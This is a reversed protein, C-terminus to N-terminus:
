WAGNSLDDFNPEHRAPALAKAARKARLEQATTGKLPPLVIMSLASLVFTGVFVVLIAILLLM